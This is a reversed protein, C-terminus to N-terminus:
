IQPDRVNHIARIVIWHNHNLKVIVAVAIEVLIGIGNEGTREFTSLFVSPFTCQKIKEGIKERM